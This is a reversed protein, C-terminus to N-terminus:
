NFWKIIPNGKFGKEWIFWAYAAASSGTKEFEGNKACKLRGSAVYIVKPPYKEFLKRRAQGELFTLKLFMAVKVSEMSNDLAIEVFEKAYKYPPNTIIDRDNRRGECEYNLFDLNGYFYEYGRDVKDTSLVDYGNKRLVESLHGGGCACEWVKHCFQEKELLLELAKPETAYYDDVHREKDTHNSAGLCTYISKHNGTWDKVADGVKYFM